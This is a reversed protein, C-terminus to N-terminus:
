ALMGIGISVHVQRRFQMFPVTDMSCSKWNGGEVLAGWGKGFNAGFPQPVRDRTGM